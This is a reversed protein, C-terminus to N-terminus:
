CIKIGSVKNEILTVLGGLQRFEDAAIEEDTFEVGFTDEVFILFKM